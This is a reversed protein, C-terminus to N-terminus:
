FYKDNQGGALFRYAPLSIIGPHSVTYTFHKLIAFNDEVLLSRLAPQDM